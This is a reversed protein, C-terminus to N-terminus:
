IWVSACLALVCFTSVENIIIITKMIIIIVIMTIISLHQMKRVYYPYEFLITTTTIIWIWATCSNSITRPITSCKINRARNEAKSVSLDMDANIYM